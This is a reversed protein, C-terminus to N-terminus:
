RWPIQVDILITPPSELFDLLGDVAILDLVEALEQREGLYLDLVEVLFVLKFPRVKSMTRLAQFLTLEAPLNRIQHEWLVVVLEAFVPSTITSFVEMVIDHRRGDAPAM